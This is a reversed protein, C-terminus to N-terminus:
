RSGGVMHPAVAHNTHLKQFALVRVNQARALASEMCAAKCDPRFSTSRPALSCRARGAALCARVWEDATLLLPNRAEVLDNVQCSVGATSQQWTFRGWIFRRRYVQCHVCIVNNVNHDVQATKLYVFSKQRASGVDCFGLTSLTATNPRLTFRAPRSFIRVEPNLLRSPLTKSCCLVYATEGTYSLRYLALRKLQHDHTRVGSCAFAFSTVLISHHWVQPRQFLCGFNSVIAAFHSSKKTASIHAAIVFAVQLWGHRRERHRPFSVM